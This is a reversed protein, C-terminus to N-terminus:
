PLLHIEVPDNAAVETVTEPIHVLCDARAFSNMKYSEQGEPLIVTKGDYVGKLFHAIGAPKRYATALKAIAIEPVLKQGTMIELAALVYEYYCTLVSAPNGPLGFVLQREKKGFFIPKGPKQKVKHFIQTVGCQGAARLVYDYDGVSVGGTLMVLDSRELAESLIKTLEELTDRSRYIKYRNVHLQRLAAVLSFSNTDYVQGFGLPNGPQQLENGTVIISIFPLPYVAVESIGMAALFGIAAPSLRTGAHLALSGKQIESGKPRVNAGQYLKGDQIELMGKEKNVKEQIVITDAGKPLAAGTFIRMAEGPSLRPQEATGAPIAGSIKLKEKHKWDEFRIAYGDMSSQTYAPIDCPAHIENALILGAAEDLPILVEALRRTNERILQKAETVSIM